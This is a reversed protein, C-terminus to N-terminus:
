KVKEKYLLSQLMEPAQYGPTGVMGKAGQPTTYTSLGYDSLRVTVAHTAIDAEWVLINDCKLDKYIISQSHLYQLAACIQVYM